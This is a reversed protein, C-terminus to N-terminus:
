AAEQKKANQMALMMQAILIATVRAQHEPWNHYLQAGKTITIMLAATQIPGNDVQCERWTTSLPLHKM